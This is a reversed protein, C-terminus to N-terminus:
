LELDTRTPKERPFTWNSTGQSKDMTSPLITKSDPQLIDSKSYVCNYRRVRNLVELNGIQWIGIDIFDDMLTIDQERILPVEFETAFKISSSFRHCLKWTHTFWCPEALKGLHDFDREFIHDRLGVSIRFTEYAHHLTQGAASNLDWHCGIFHFQDGLNDINLDFYGLGGYKKTITRM